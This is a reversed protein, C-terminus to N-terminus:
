GNMVEEITKIGAVCRSRNDCGVCAVLSEMSGAGINGSGLKGLGMKALGLKGLSYEALNFKLSWIM